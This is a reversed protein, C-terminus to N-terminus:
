IGNQAESSGVRLRARFTNFYKLIKCAFENDLDRNWNSSIQVVKLVQKMILFAGKMTLFALDSSSSWFHPGIISVSSKKFQKREKCVHKM